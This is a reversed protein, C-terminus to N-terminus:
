EDNKMELIDDIVRYNIFRDIADKQGNQTLFFKWNTFDVWKLDEVESKDWDKIDGDFKAYYIYFFQSEKAMLDRELSKKVFIPVVDIGLEELVERKIGQEPTEGSHIHGGASEIWWGPYSKKTKSRRQFLIQNKSNILYILGVRHIYKPDSHALTKPIPKILEDDENVWDLLEDEAM